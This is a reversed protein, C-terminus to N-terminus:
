AIDSGHHYGARALTLVYVESAGANVLARACSNVTAGTTAIDDMLLVIKGEIIRHDGQFANAVNEQREIPTLGVQSRSDRIRSIARPRYLWRNMSALPMAVLGVQNYGREEMRKKGLPVPVVLDIPWGQANVFPALRTALAEGLGLNNQYKLSLLASRISGDYVSWSRMKKFSSPSQPM